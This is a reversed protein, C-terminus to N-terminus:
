DILLIKNLDSSNIFNIRCIEFLNNINQEIGAKITLGMKYGAQKSLEIVQDNYLGFPYSIVEVPKNLLEELNAKSKELERKQETESVRTIYPHYVTHSQFEVLGTEVMEKIQEHSIYNKGGVGTMVAVNSKMQYEKLIPFATTYFDIPGDDITLVIAKQPIKKEELYKLIESLFYTKYGLSDIEDLLQKFNEESLYWVKNQASISAPAVGVHHITLIPLEFKDEINDFVIGTDEIVNPEQVIEQNEIQTRTNGTCGAFIVIVLILTLFLCAQEKCLIKKINKKIHQVPFVRIM